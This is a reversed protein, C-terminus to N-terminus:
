SFDANKFIAVWANSTRCKRLMKKLNQPIKSAWKKYINKKYFFCINRKSHLWFLQFSWKLTLPAALPFLNSLGLSWILASCSHLKLLSFNPPNAESNMTKSLSFLHPFDDLSWYSLILSLPGRHVSWSPLDTEASLLAIALTGPSKIHLILKFSAYKRTGNDCFEWFYSLNWHFPRNYLNKHIKLFTMQLPWLVVYFSQSTITWLLLLEKLVEAICLKVVGAFEAFQKWINELPVISDKLVSLPLAVNTSICHSTRLIERMMVSLLNLHM